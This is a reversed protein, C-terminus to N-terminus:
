NEDEIFMTKDCLEELKIVKTETCLKPNSENGLLILEKNIAHLVYWQGKEHNHREESIPINHQSEQEYEEKIFIHKEKSWELLKSVSKMLVPIPLSLIFSVVLIVILKDVQNGGETSGVIFGNFAFYFISLCIVFTIALLCRAWYAKFFNSIRSDEEKYKPDNLLFILVFLLEGFIGFVTGVSSSSNIDVTWKPIGTLIVISFFFSSWFATHWLHRWIMLLFLKEKSFLKKEFINASLLTIPRLKAVFIYVLIGGAAIYGPLGISKLLSFVDM